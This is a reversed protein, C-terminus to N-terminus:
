ETLDQLVKECVGKLDGAFKKDESIVQVSKTSSNQVELQVACIECTAQCQKAHNVYVNLTRTNLIYGKEFLHKIQSNLAKSVVQKIGNENLASSDFRLILIPKSYQNEGFCISVSTM